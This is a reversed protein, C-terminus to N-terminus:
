LAGGKETPLEETPTVETESQPTDAVKEVEACECGVYITEGIYIKPKM